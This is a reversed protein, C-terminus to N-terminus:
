DAGHVRWRDVPRPGASPSALRRRKNHPRFLPCLPLKKGGPWFRRLLLPLPPTRDSISRRGDAREFNVIRRFRIDTRVSWVLSLTPCLRRRPRITIQWDGALARSSLGYVSLRNHVPLCPNRQDQRDHQPHGGGLDGAVLDHLVLGGGSGGALKDLDDDGLAVDVRALFELGLV